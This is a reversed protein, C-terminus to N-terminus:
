EGKVRPLPLKDLDIKPYTNTLDNILNSHLGVMKWYKYHLLLHYVRNPKEEFDNLCEYDASEPMSFAELMEIHEQQHREPSLTNLVTQEFRYFPHNKGLRKKESNKSLEEFTM